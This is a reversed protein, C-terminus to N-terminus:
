LGGPLKYPVVWKTAEKNTPQRERKLLPQACDDFNTTSDCNYGIQCNPANPRGYSKVTICSPDFHQSAAIGAIAFLALLVRQM